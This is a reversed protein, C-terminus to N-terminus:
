NSYWNYQLNPFFLLEEIIAVVKKEWDEICNTNWSPLRNNLLYKPVYHAVIGSLRGINIGNKSELIPSGQLFIMKGNLFSADGTQAIYMLLANRASKIHTPMSAKTIPIYKVGSTTGSTKAFYLPKGEWLVDSEGALVREIYVRLGEYDSIPVKAKFDNYTRISEFGHDRGFVTNKGVSILNKFVKKQTKVPSKAWRYVKKQIFKAFPVAFASKISM